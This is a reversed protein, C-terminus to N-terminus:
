QKHVEFCRWAASVNQMEAVVVRTAHGVTMCAVETPFREYHTDMGGNFRSFIVILLWETM